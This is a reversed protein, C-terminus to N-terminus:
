HKKCSTMTQSRVLQLCKSGCGPKSFLDKPCDVKRALSNGIRSCAGRASQVFTTWRGAWVLGGPRARSAGACPQVCRCRVKGEATRPIGGANRARCSVYLMFIPCPSRLYSSRRVPRKAHSSGQGAAGQAEFVLM